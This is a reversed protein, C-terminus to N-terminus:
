LEKSTSALDPNNRIMENIEQMDNPDISDLEPKNRSKRSKPIKLRKRACSGKMRKTVDECIYSTLANKDMKNAWLKEVLDPGAESFIRECAAAVTMCDELCPAPKPMRKLNLFTKPATEEPTEEVIEYESLWRGAVSDHNCIDELLDDIRDESIKTNPLSKRLEEVLSESRRVLAKCTPCTIYKIDSVVAEAPPGGGMGPMGMGPMGMGGGMGGGMMQAMMAPDMGEMGEMGGMGGMGGGMMQAMMAPDMGEMGEMGGMGGMGGGMMQAMMAPDMGEMGGMGGGLDFGDMGGNEGLMEKLKEPTMGKLSNEIDEFALDNVNVEDDTEAAESEVSSSQVYLQSAPLTFFAQVFLLCPIGLLKLKM